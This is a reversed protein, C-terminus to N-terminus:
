AVDKKRDSDIKDDARDTENRFRDAADRGADKVKGMADQAKGKIQDMAGAGGQNSPNDLRSM